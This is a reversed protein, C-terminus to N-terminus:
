ELYWARRKKLSMGEQSASRRATKVRGQGDLPVSGEDMLRQFQELTIEPAAVGGVNGKSRGSAAKRRSASRDNVGKSGRQSPDAPRSVEGEPQYPMDASESTEFM